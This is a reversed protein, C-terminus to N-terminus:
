EKRGASSRKLFSFAGRKRGISRISEADPPQQHGNQQHAVDGADVPRAVNVRGALELGDGASSDAGNLPERAVRRSDVTASREATKGTTQGRWQQGGMTLSRIALSDLADHSPPPGMPESATPRAPCFSLLQDAPALRSRFNIREVWELMKAQSNEVAFLFEAGDATNMKFVNRKKVYEPYLTCVSGYIPLPAAAAMNELFHQEDKFFCILQGCLITYYNKWSRFTARKGGIQLEQKRDIYGHVDVSRLDDWHRSSRRISQTRRTTFTPVRRPVTSSEEQGLATPHGIELSLRNSSSTVSSTSSVSVTAAAAAASALPQDSSARPRTRPLTASFSAPPVGQPTTASAATAASVTRQQQQQQQQSLEKAARGLVTIEQTKRREREQRKEQLIKKKELTRIQQTDRRSHQQQQPPGAANEVRKRQGEEERMREFAEEVKTIRKLAEFQVQQAELTVLFDDFHRIQHEVGEVSDVAGSRWDERLFQQERESLWRELENANAMWRQVDANEEYVKQRKTWTQALHGFTAELTDLRSRIEAGLSNGAGLMEVGRRVFNAKDAEKTEFERRYEAHRALLAECGVPDRPLLEGTITAYMQRSWAMLGRFEQFYAYNKQAQEIRDSLRDTVERVDKLQEVLEGRRVELHEATRPFAQVIRDAETCLLEVQAGLVNLSNVFDEHRQWQGQVEKLEVGALEENAQAVLYAEKEALRELLEDAKQDFLHINKGDVLAQQRENTMENVERWLLQVDQGKAGISGGNPHRARLLEEKQRQINAVREGAGALERVVQDFQEILTECEDLDAGYDEREALALRKQLWDILEDAKHMFQFYRLSDGIQTKRQHCQDSLQNFLNRLHNQRSQLSVVDFHDALVMKECKEGLRKLQDGFTDIEQELAGIRRLQLEATNALDPQVTSSLIPLRERMWHEAEVAEAYFEQSQLSEALRQTRRSALEHFSAASDQLRALRDALEGKADDGQERLMREGDVVLQVIAPERVVFEKELIQHKQILSQAAHFSRGYDLSQLPGLKAMLWELQDDAQDAWRFFRIVERLNTERIQCPELLAEWRVRLTELRNYLEADDRSIDLKTVRQGLEELVKRREGIEARLTDFAELLAEATVSDQGHDESGIQAETGDLWKELESMRRGLQHSESAKRLRATKDASKQILETWGALVEQLQARVRECDTDEGGEEVVREGREKLQEVRGANAADDYALQLKANMWTILEACERLFHALHRANWLQVFKNETRGPLGRCRERTEAVRERVREAEADRMESLEREAVDLQELRDEVQASLTKAFHSHESLAVEVSEASDGAVLGDLFAAKAAAWGEIQATKAVIKQRRSARELKGQEQEWCQKTQHELAQIRRQARQVDAKLEPQDQVLKHGFERLARFEEERAGIEALREHHRQLAREAEEMSRVRTEGGMKARVEASWHELRRIADFFRHYHLSRQLSQRRAHALQALGDWSLELKRLSALVTDRLPLERGLLQKAQEDHENLKRHIASMDREVADQGRILREVAALDKGVDDGGLLAAKEGIRENTEDVDRNFRHVELAAGLLERYNILRGALRHWGENVEALRKRVHDAEATKRGILRGGLRNAEAVTGEDMGQGEDLRDLLSQCHELDNGLEEAGVMGEKARVFACLRDALQELELLDRAEELAADLKRAAENLQKWRLLLEDCRSVATETGNRGRLKELCARLVEVRAGNADLERQLAQQRKLRELKQELLAGGTEVTQAKVRKEKEEVWESMEALQAEFQELEAGEDLATQVGEMRDRLLDMRVGVKKALRKCENAEMHGRLALERALEALRKVREELPAMTRMFTGFERRRREVNKGRQALTDLERERTQIQSLVQNAERQMSHWQVTQELWEERLTWEKRVTRFADDLQELRQAVEAEPCHGEQVLMRGVKGLESRETERGDMEAKLRRHEGAMWEATQLDRVPQDAAMETMAAQTWALLDRVQAAFKHTEYSSLLRASRCLSLDRLSRWSDSLSDSFDVPPNPTNAARARCALLLELQEHLQAVENEFVENSLMLSYAHKADRGLETPIGCTKERIREALVEAERRLRHTQEAGELMLGRRQTLQGMQAWLTRLKDGTETVNQALKDDARGLLDAAAEEMKAMREAGVRLSQKFEEFKMKLQECQELDNGFEEASAIQMRDNIWEELETGEAMFSHVALVCEAGRTAERAMEELTQAQTEVREMREMVTDQGKTGKILEAGRHRLQVFARRWPVMEHQLTGTWALLKKAGEPSLFNEKGMFLQRQKEALWNEAEATDFLFHERRLAEGLAQTRLSVALTLKGWANELEACKEGIKQACIHGISILHHGASLLHQVRGHHCDLEASLQEHRKVLNQAETLSHGLFPSEALTLKEAIWQLEVDADFALQHWKLSEELEVRRRELPQQLAEFRGLLADVQAMLQATAFHNRNRLQRGRSSIDGLRVELVQIDQDTQAKRKMLEKVGRLDRGREGEQLRTELETLRANAEAITEELSRQEDAQELLEGKRRALEELEAWGRELQGLIPRTQDSSAKGQDVMEDGKRKLRAMEARNAALEAVFAAHRMIQGKVNATTAVAAEAGGSGGELLRRKDGMWAALEEADRRLGVVALANQLETRKETARERVRDFGKRAEARQSRIREASAHGAHILRDSAGAFSLLREEQASLRAEFQTHAKLLNQVGEVSSVAVELELFAMHGRNLAEIREAERLFAQLELLQKCERERKTWEAGLLAQAEALQSLRKGVEKSAGKAMLRRGLEEAYAFEYEKAQMQDRIKAHRHLVDEAQSGASLPELLISDNIKATWELLERVTREFLERGQSHEAEEICRRAQSLLRGHMDELEDVRASVETAHEIQELAIEDAKRRLGVLRDGLPRLDRELNQFRRQVVQLNRLDCGGPQKQLLVSKETLWNRMETCEEQLQALRATRELESQKNLMSNQLENWLQRMAEQAAHIDSSRSHDQELLEDATADLQQLQVAGQGRVEDRVKHFKDQVAVLHEIAVPEQLAQCVGRAWQEFDQCEAFFKFLKLAEELLRGRQEASSCLRQYEASLGKQRNALASAGDARVKPSPRRPPLQSVTVKEEDPALECYNAPVYGEVGRRTLVRWWDRNSGDILALEEGSQVTIGKGSYPYLVLAKSVVVEEELPESQGNGQPAEEETGLAFEMDAMGALQELRVIESRYSCIEKELQRHRQCLCEASSIDRGFDDSRALPAKERLWSDAENADQFFQTLREAEMLWNTLAANTARLEQWSRQLTDARWQVERPMALREGDSILRKTREWHSQMEAELSKHLRQSDRLASLDRLQLLAGCASLRDSLWGSLEDFHQVFQFFERAKQLAARREKADAQLQEYQKSVAHLRLQLTELTAERHPSQAKSLEAKRRLDSLLESKASLDTEALEQAKLLEDVETLHRGTERGKLQTGLGDLEDGLTDLGELLTSLEELRDLETERQGLLMLFANWRGIIERERQRIEESGHFRETQLEASLEKLMQFREKKPAAETEINRLLRKGTAVSQSNPACEFQGLVIAIERLWADRVDAKKHFLQARHELREQRQLEEILAGQRAHEAKELESWAGEVIHLLLGEPPTYAKRRSANRKTQIAFFLAELEGKERYKPPKEEKRFRNFNALEERLDTLNNPFHRASLWRITLRIWGLLDAAMQEYDEQMGDQEVLEGVVKAVRRAGTLETKQKAFYHYFLSVYTIISKEDPHSVNVDEADLLPSIELNKDAVDFALNLNGIAEQPNLVDFNVLEPRHAHILACFALGNRWSSTFNDVKVNPYGATKRQCWLLLAEKAHKREGSELILRENGDTIDEAGINELQIRKYKLFDLCRNLNEVKQVRMRGRNPKGLKEGSIIELFKILLIGDAFDSFLDSIELRGRNLYTNCWKTFTKKQIHIREDKLQRIRNQEFYLTEDLQLEGEETGGSITLLSNNGGRGNGNRGDKIVWGNKGNESGNSSSNGGGGHNNNTGKGNLYSRVSSSSSSFASSAM